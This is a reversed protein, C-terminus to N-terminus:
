ITVMGRAYHVRSAAEFCLCFTHNVNASRVPSYPNSLQIHIFTLAISINPNKVQRVLSNDQFIGLQTTKMARSEFCRVHILM